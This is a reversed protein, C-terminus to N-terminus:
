FREPHRTSKAAYMTTLNTISVGVVAYLIATPASYEWPQTRTFATLVAVATILLGLWRFFQGASGVWRVLTWMTIAAAFTSAIALWTSASLVLPEPPSSIHRQDWYQQPVAATAANLALTVVWAALAVILASAVASAFYFGVEVVGAHMSPPPEPTARTAPTANERDHRDDAVPMLWTHTERADTDPPPGDRDPLASYALAEPRISGVPFAQTDASNSELDFDKEDTMPLTEEPATTPPYHDSAM